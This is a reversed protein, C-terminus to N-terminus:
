VEILEQNIGILLEPESNDSNSFDSMTYYKRNGHSDVFAAAIIRNDIPVPMNQLVMLRHGNLTLLLM